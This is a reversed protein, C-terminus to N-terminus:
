RFLHPIFSSLNDTIPGASERIGLGCCEQDIMWLGLVPHRVAGFRLNDPFVVMPALAQYIVLGDSYTGDTEVTTGDAYTIAINAGERSLLPKRVHAPLHRPSDFYSELLLPHNPFLEWLIPLLGKNSLLLKWIPEIWIMQSYTQLAHPGFDEALLSEWPYLKFLSQISREHLDVFGQRPENWGIDPTAIRATRLGAQQATDELYALTLTDEATDVGSFFVPQALYPTIDCWKAILKEHLSNFQDAPKQLKALSPIEGSRAIREPRSSPPYPASHLSVPEEVAGEVRQAREPDPRSSLTRPDTQNLHELWTWQIVAAELLSTPTDANYELLKPPSGSRDGGWLLDFRGFLAPPEANWAAEIVPLAASPIALDAFRNADIIHQAALCMTQLENGAAELTDIEAATFEYHATEDWYPRDMGNGKSAPADEAIPTHFTLGQQEVLHQWNARPTSPLRQM